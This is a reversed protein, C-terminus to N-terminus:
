KRRMAEAFYKGNNEFNKLIGERERERNNKV